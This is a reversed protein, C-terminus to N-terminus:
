RVDTKTEVKETVIEPPKAERHFIKRVTRVIWRRTKNAYFIVGAFASVISVWLLQGLGPDIYAILM